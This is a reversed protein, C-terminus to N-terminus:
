GQTQPVLVRYCLHTHTLITSLTVLVEVTHWKFFHDYVELVTIRFGLFSHCCVYLLTIIVFALNSVQHFRDLLLQRDADLDWVYVPVVRVNHLEPRKLGGEEALEQGFESLFQHLEKSDLYEDLFLGYTELHIRSTYTRIARSFAASCESCESLKIKVHKFKLSQRSFLLSQNEELFQDEIAKFDLGYPDNQTENGGIIHVIHVQALCCGSPNTV